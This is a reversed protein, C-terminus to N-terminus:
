LIVHIETCKSMSLMDQMAMPKLFDVASPAGAIKLGDSTLLSRRMRWAGLLFQSPFHLATTQSPRFIKYKVVMFHLNM